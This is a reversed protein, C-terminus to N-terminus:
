KQFYEVLEESNYFSEALSGFSYSESGITIVAGGIQPASNPQSHKFGINYLTSQVGPKNDIPFGAKQWETNIQQLFLGAYLYAFSHDHEDTLRKFRETDHDPSTFDLINEFSSGLYYPSSSDKLHQEIEIATEQKIGMVGWSFQSQVGLIKLPEFIEKFLERNSSYLRLQEVMLEAVILRPKIGTQTGARIIADKDSVIAQKLVLWEESTKWAQIHAETHLTRDITGQVNTLHFTIAIYGLTFFLGIAAFIYVVIIFIKKAKNM